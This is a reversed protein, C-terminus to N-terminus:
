QLSMADEIPVWDSLQGLDPGLEYVPCLDYGILEKPLPLRRDIEDM